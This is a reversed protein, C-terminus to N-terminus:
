AKSNSDITACHQPAREGYTNSDNCMIASRGQTIWDRWDVPKWTQSEWDSERPNDHETNLRRWHKAGTGGCARPPM